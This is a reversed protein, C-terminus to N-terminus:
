VEAFLLSVRRRYMSAKESADNFESWQKPGANCIAGPRTHMGITEEVKSSKRRQLSLVPRYRLNAQRQPLPECADGHHGPTLLLGPLGRHPSGHCSRMRVVVM